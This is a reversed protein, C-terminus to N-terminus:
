ANRCEDCSGDFPDTRDDPWECVIEAGCDRCQHTHDM